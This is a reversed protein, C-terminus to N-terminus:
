KAMHPGKSKRYVHTRIYDHPSMQEEKPTINVLNVQIGLFLVLKGSKDIVPSMYFHNRFMSGDKKYNLLAVAAPKKEKIAERINNVSEPSTQEGQLFRCNRGVVENQSYQTFECFDNSAYIIPLDPKAPDCLVFMSKKTVLTGLLERDRPHIEYDQVGIKTMNEVTGYKILVGQEVSAQAETGRSQCSGM